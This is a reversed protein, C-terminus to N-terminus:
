AEHVLRIGLGDHANFYKIEKGTSSYAIEMNTLVGDVDMLIVRVNKARQWMEAVLEASCNM